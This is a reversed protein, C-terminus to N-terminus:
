AAARRDQRGLLRRLELNEGQAAALAAQLRESEVRHRQKLGSIQASLARAVNSQTAAEDVEVVRRSPPVSDRERTAERDTRAPVLPIPFRGLRRRGEGPRPLHRSATVSSLVLATTARATAAQHKRQAAARLNSPTGARCRLPEGPPRRNRPPPRQYRRRASGPRPPPSSPSPSCAIIKQLARQESLRQELWVNSASM